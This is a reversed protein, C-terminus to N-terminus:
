LVATNKLFEVERELEKIRKNAKELLANVSNEKQWIREREWKDSQEKKRKEVSEPHHQKCWGDKWSNRTCLHFNFGEFVDKKCKIPDM